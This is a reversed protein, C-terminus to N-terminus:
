QVSRWRRGGQRGEESLRPAATRREIRSSPTPARGTVPAAVSRAAATQAQHFCVSCTGEIEVVPNSLHFGEREAAHEVARTAMRDEIEIVTGCQRCILFQVPHEHGSDACPIFANLLEVKHILHQKILFDLARYVTPPVARGHTEKLRDLLQYATLPTGAQLILMLVRRRLETFRVGQRLCAQTASNLQAGVDRHGTPNM